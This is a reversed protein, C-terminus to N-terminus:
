KYNRWYLRDPIGAMHASMGIITVIACKKPNRRSFNLLNKPIERCSDVFNADVALFFLPEPAM